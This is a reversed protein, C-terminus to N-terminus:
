HCLPPTPTPTRPRLSLLWCAAFSINKKRCLLLLVRRHYATVFLLSTICHNRIHTGVGCMSLSHTVLFPSFPFGLKTPSLPFFPKLMEEGVEQERVGSDDDDADMQLSSVYSFFCLFLYHESYPSSSSEESLFPPPPSPASHSSSSLSAVVSERM